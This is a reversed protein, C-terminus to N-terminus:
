YSINRVLILINNELTILLSIILTKKQCKGAAGENKGNIFFLCAIGVSIAAYFFGKAMARQYVTDLLRLFYLSQEIDAGAGM